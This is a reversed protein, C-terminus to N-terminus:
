GGNGVGKDIVSALEPMLIKLAPASQPTVISKLAAKQADNMSMVRAALVKAITPNPKLMADKNLPKGNHTYITKQQEPTLM